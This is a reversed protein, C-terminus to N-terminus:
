STKEIFTFKMTKFLKEKSISYPECAKMFDFSTELASECIILGDEALLGSSFIATLAKEELGQRFPPDLFIIDMKLGKTDLHRIAQLCDMRLIEAKAQLQTHKLNYEIAQLAEPAKEIFFAKDAGRSLGEIGIAGSGSFLDLFVSGFLRTQLMNFLTEKTRDLTPRVDTGEPVILSLSRATGAIVRM